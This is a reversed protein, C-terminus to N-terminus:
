SKDEKSKRWNDASIADSCWREMMDGAEELRKVRKKLWLTQKKSGTIYRECEKIYQLRMEAINRWYCVDCFEKQTEDRGHSHHNIAYSYCRKCKM